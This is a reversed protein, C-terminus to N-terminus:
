LYPMQLPLAQLYTLNLPFLYDVLFTNTKVMWM